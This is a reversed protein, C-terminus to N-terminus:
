PPSNRLAGLTESTFQLYTSVPGKKGRPPPPCPSPSIIKGLGDRERLKHGEKEEM